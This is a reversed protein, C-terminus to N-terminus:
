YKWLEYQNWIEVAVFDNQDKVKKIWYKAKKYDQEVDEGLFYAYGLTLQAKFYGNNASLNLQKEVDSKYKESDRQDLLKVYYYQAESHNNEAAYKFYNEAKTLNVDGCLPSYYIIGLLYSSFPIEKALSYLEIGKNCDQKRGQALINMKGLAVASGKYGNIYAKGHMEYAKHFNRPIGGIGYLYIEGLIFEAHPNNQKALPLLTNIAKTINQENCLGVEKLLTISQSSFNDEQCLNFDAFIFCPLLAILLTKKIMNM